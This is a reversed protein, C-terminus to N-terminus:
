TKDKYYKYKSNEKIYDICDTKIGRFLKFGEIDQVEYITNNINILQMDYELEEKLVKHIEEKIIQKLELKKM